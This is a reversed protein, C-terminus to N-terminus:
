QILHKHGFSFGLKLDGPVWTDWHSFLSALLNIILQVCTVPFSTSWYLPICLVTALVGHEATRLAIQM